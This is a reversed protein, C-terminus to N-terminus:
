LVKSIKYFQQTNLNFYNEVRSILYKELELIGQTKDVLRRNHWNYIKVFVETYM